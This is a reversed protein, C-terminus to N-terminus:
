LNFPQIIQATGVMSEHGLGTRQEPPWQGGNGNPWLQVLTKYCDGSYPTEVQGEDATQHSM